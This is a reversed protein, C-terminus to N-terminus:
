EAANSEALKALAAKGADMEAITAASLPADETIEVNGEYTVADTIQDNVAEAETNKTRAM